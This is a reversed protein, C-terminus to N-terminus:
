MSEDTIWGDLLEIHESINAVRTTVFERMSETHETDDTSYSLLAILIARAHKRRRMRNLGRAYEEIFLWRQRRDEPGLEGIWEVVRRADADGPSILEAFDGRTERAHPYKEVFDEYIDRTIRVPTGTADWYM